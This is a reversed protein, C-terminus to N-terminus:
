IDEDGDLQLVAVIRAAFEGGDGALYIAEEGHGHHHDEFMAIAEGDGNNVAAPVFDVVAFVNEFFGGEDAVDFEVIGM